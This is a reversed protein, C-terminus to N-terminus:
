KNSGEDFEENEALSWWRWRAAQGVACGVSTVAGDVAGRLIAVFRESLFRGCGINKARYWGGRCICARDEALGVVAGDRGIREGFM